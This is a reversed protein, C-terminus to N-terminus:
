SVVPFGVSDVLRPGYPSVSSSGSLLSCTHSLCLEEPGERVRNGAKPDREGLQAAKDLRLLPLYM